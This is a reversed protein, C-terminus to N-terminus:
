RAIRVTGSRDKMTRESLTASEGAMTQVCDEFLRLKESIGADRVALTQPMGFSGGGRSASGRAVEEVSIVDDFEPLM